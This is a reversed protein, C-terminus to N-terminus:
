ARDGVLVRERDGLLQLLAQARASARCGRSGALEAAPKHSVTTTERPTVTTDSTVGTRIWFTNSLPNLGHSGGYTYLCRSARRESSTTMANTAARM